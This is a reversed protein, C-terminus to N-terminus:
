SVSAVGKSTSKGRGQGAQISLMAEAALSDNELPGADHGLKGSSGFLVSGHRGLRRPHADPILSELTGTRGRGPRTHRVIYGTHYCPGGCAWSDLLGWRQTRPLLARALGWSNPLIRGRYKRQGLHEWCCSCRAAAVPEEEQSGSRGSSGSLCHKGCLAASHGHVLFFRDRLTVSAINHRSELRSTGSPLSRCARESQEAGLWM